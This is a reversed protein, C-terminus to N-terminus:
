LPREFASAVIELPPFALRRRPGLWRGMELFEPRRVEGAEDAYGGAVDVPDRGLAIVHPEVDAAPAPQDVAARSM